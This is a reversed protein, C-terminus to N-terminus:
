DSISFRLTRLINDNDDTIEVRWPGKDAVRLQMTSFTSWKPSKLHFRNTAVLRDKHFWRHYILTNQSIEEFATFCFIRGLSIPFLVAINAPEYEKIYECM